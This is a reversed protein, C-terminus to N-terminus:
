SLVGTKHESKTAALAGGKVNDADLPKPAAQTKILSSGLLAM